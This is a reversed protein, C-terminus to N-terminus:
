CSLEHRKKETPRHNAHHQSTDPPSPPDPREFQSRSNLLEDEFVTWVFGDNFQVQYTLLHGSEARERITTYVAGYDADVKLVTAQQHSHYWLKADSSDHGEYCHYEFWCRQGIARLDKITVGDITVQAWKKKSPPLKRLANTLRRATINAAVYM